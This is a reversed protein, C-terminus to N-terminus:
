SRLQKVALCRPLPVHEMPRRLLTAQPLETVTVVPVAVLAVLLRTQRLRYM